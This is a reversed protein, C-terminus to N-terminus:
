PPANTRNWAGGSLVMRARTPTLKMLLACAQEFASDSIEVKSKLEVWDAATLTQFSFSLGM